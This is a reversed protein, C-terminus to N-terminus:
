LKETIILKIGKAKAKEECWAIRTQLRKIQNRNEKIQKISYNVYTNLGHETEPIEDRVSM